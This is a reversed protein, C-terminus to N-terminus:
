NRSVHTSVSNKKSSIIDALHIGTATYRIRIRDLWHIRIRIWSPLLSGCFYFFSLLNWTKFHQIKEKSPQLSRRYILRGKHLGLSLCFATKSWFSIMFQKWSFKKGFKPWWFKPNSQIRIPMCGLISPESGPEIFGSGFCQHTPLFHLVSSHKLLFMCSNWVVLIEASYTLHPFNNKKTDFASHDRQLQFFPHNEFLYGSRFEGHLRSGSVARYM